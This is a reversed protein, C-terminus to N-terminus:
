FWIRLRHKSYFKLCVSTWACFLSETSSQNWSYVVCSRQVYNPSRCIVRRCFYTAGSQVRWDECHLRSAKRCFTRSRWSHALPCCLIFYTLKLCLITKNAWRRWQSDLGDSHECSPLNHLVLVVVLKSCKGSNTSTCIRSNISLGSYSSSALSTLEFNWFLLSFVLRLM